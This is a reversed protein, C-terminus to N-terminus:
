TFKFAGKNLFLTWNLSIFARNKKKKQLPGFYDYLWAACRDSEWASQKTRADLKCKQIYVYIDIYEYPWYKDSYRLKYTGMWIDSLPHVVLRSPLTFRKLFSVKLFYSYNFIILKVFNSNSDWENESSRVKFLNFSKKKRILM